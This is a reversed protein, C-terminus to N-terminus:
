CSSYTALRAPLCNRETAAPKSLHFCISPLNRLAPSPALDATQRLESVIRPHAVSEYLGNKATKQPQVLRQRSSDKNMLISFYYPGSPEHPQTCALRNGSTPLTVLRQLRALLLAAASARCLSAGSVLALELVYPLAPLIPASADPLSRGAGAPLVSLRPYELTGWFLLPMYNTRSLM